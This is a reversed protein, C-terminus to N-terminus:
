GRKPTNYDNFDNQPKWIDICSNQRILIYVVHRVMQLVYKQQKKKFEPTWNPTTIETITYSRWHSDHEHEYRYKLTKRNKGKLCM